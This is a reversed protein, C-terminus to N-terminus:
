EQKEIEKLFVRVVEPDFLKGSQEELYQRTQERSWAQRYPRDSRLADWCDIIAFIRAELPIETGKLGHPYGSGDWREHHYIPITLAPKLFDIKSLMKQAYEPHKRMLEWEAQDLSGPKLLISDPIAMKGIDHLLAGRRIHTIAEESFGMQRAIEVTLATVRRSHGETEKDRLELAQAWGELTTDYAKELELNAMRLKEENYKLATEMIKRETIDHGVSQIEIPKGESNLVLRDRWLYWREQGNNNIFRTESTITPNDKSLQKWHNLLYTVDEAPLYSAIHKGVMKDPTTAHERAYALNVFTFIGELTHRNILETQDEVVARYRAESELLRIVMERKEKRLAVEELAKLIATSLRTLNDKMIYDQAGAKVLTVAMEEGITGSVVIFPIDLGKQQFIELARVGSFRPLNFDSIIVDWPGHQSLAHEFAEQTDVRKLTIKFGNKELNRTLLITDAESDEILLLKLPTQMLYAPPNLLQM